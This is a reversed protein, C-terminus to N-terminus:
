QTEEKQKKIDYIPQWFDVKLPKGGRGFIHTDSFLQICRQAEKITSYCVFGKQRTVNEAVKMLKLSIISGQKINKEPKEHDIKEQNIAKSMTERFQEETVNEPINLVLINAEFTQKMSQTIPPMGKSMNNITQNVFKQVIIMQGNIEKKMNLGEIANVAAQNNNYMVFACKKETVLKM